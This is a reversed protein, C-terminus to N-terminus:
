TSHEWRTLAGVRSTAQARARPSLTSHCSVPVIITLTHRRMYDPFLRRCWSSQCRVTIAQIKTNMRASAEHGLASLGYPQIAILRHAHDALAAIAHDVFGQVRQRALVDRELLQAARVARTQRAELELEADHLFHM